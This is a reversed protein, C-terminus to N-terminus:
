NITRDYRKWCMVLRCKRFNVRHRDRRWRLILWCNESARSLVSHLGSKMMLFAERVFAEDFSSFLNLFCDIRRVVAKCYFRVCTSCPGKLALKFTKFEVM